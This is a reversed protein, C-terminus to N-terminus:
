NICLSFDFYSFFIFFGISPLWSTFMCYLSICIVWFFFFLFIVLFCFSINFSIPLLLFALWFLLPILNRVMCNALTQHSLQFVGFTGGFQPHSIPFHTSMCHQSLMTHHLKRFSLKVNDLLSIFVYLWKALGEKSNVICFYKHLKVLIIHRETCNKRLM